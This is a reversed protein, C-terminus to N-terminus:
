LGGATEFSSHFRPLAPHQVRTNLAQARRLSAIARSESAHKVFWREGACLVGYAVNGSDQERFARFVEGVGALYTEIDMDINHVDTLPNSM